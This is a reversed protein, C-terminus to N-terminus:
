QASSPMSGLVVKAVDVTLQDLAQKVTNQTIHLKKKLNTFVFNHDGYNVNTNDAIYVQIQHNNYAYLGLLQSM